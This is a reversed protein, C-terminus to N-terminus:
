GDPVGRWERWTLRSQGWVKQADADVREDWDMFASWWRRGADAFEALSQELGDARLVVLDDFAVTGEICYSRVEDDEVRGCENFWYFTHSSEAAEGRVVLSPEGPWDAVLDPADFYRWGYFGGGVALSDFFGDVAEVSALPIAPGDSEDRAARLLFRVDSVGRFVLVRRSDLEIPGVEPLASVHILLAIADSSEWRVGAVEAETLALELEERVDDSWEM